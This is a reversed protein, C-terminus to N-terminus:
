SSTCASSRSCASSAWSRASRRSRITPTSPPSRSAAASRRCATASGWASCGAARSRTCRRSMQFGAGAPRAFPDLWNDVRQQVHGFLNYLVVSGVLFLRWGASVYSLRGTAVYLLALFVAFFLLAAGLDRQVVVISLAIAVMAVMPALYPLPPLQFPGIQTNEDALLSRNESLYGALFVVLIM